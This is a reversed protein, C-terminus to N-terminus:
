GLLLEYVIVVINVAMLPVPPLFALCAPSASSSLLSSSPSSSLHPPPFLVASSLPLSILYIILYCFSSYVFCSYANPVVHGRIVNKGHRLSGCSVAVFLCLLLDCTTIDNRVQGSGGMEEVVAVM